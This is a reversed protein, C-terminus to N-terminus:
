EEGNQEYDLIEGAVLELAENIESLNYCHTNVNLIEDVRHYGMYDAAWSKCLDKVAGRGSFVGNKVEVENIALYEELKNYNKM